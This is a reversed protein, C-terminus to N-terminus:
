YTYVYKLALGIAATPVHDKERGATSLILHISSAPCFAVSTTSVATAPLYVGTTSKM